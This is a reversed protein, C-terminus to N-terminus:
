PAEEERREGDEPEQVRVPERAREEEDERAVAEVEVPRPVGRALLADREAGDAPADETEAIM